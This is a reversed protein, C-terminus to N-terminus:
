NSQENQLKCTDIPLNNHDIISNLKVWYQYDGKDELILVRIRMNIFISIALNEAVSM